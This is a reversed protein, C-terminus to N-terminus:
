TECRVKFEFRGANENQEYAEIKANDEINTINGGCGEDEWVINRSDVNIVECRKCQNTRVAENFLFGCSQLVFAWSCLLILRIKTM